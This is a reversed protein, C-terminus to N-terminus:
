RPRPPRANVESSATVEESPFVPLIADIGLVRLRRDPVGDEAVLTLRRGENGLHRVAQLLTM